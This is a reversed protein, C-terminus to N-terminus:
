HYEDLLSLIAANWGKTAPFPAHVVRPAKPSIHTGDSHPIVVAIDAAELMATDNASDGLAIVQWETDPELEQYYELVSASGDAKDSAGMLHWFRGGRLMRIGQISLQDVFELRLSESEEWLFPETALRALSRQSQIISLGSREALEQDSWDAFGEFKYGMHSRLGHAVELIEKRPLGKIQVSYVGTRDNPIALLGGNEAVLPSQLGLETALDEMEAVTKSSNLVLPLGLERLRAMAPKAEDWSYSHDLFTADLDTVVLFKKKSAMLIGSFGHPLPANM